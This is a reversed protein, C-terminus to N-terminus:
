KEAWSLPSTRKYLWHYQQVMQTTRMTRYGLWAALLLIVFDVLYYHLTLFSGEMPTKLYLGWHLFRVGWALLIAYLVATTFPKWGRAVARGMLWAAGGGIIVTLVLFMWPSKEWLITQAPLEFM